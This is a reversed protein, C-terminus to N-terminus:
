VVCVVTPSPGNMQEVPEKICADAEGGERPESEKNNARAYPSTGIGVLLYM